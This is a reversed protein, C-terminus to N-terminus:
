WPLSLALDITISVFPLAEIALWTAGAGFVSGLVFELM